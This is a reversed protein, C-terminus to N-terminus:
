TFFDQKIDEIQRVTAIRCNLKIVTINLSPKGDAKQWVLFLRIEVILPEVTNAEM